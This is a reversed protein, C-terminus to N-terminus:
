TRMVLSMNDRVHVFRVGKSACFDASRLRFRGESTADSSAPLFVPSGQEYIETDVDDASMWAVLVFTKLKPLNNKELLRLLTADVDVLFGNEYGYPADVQVYLAEVTPAIRSDLDVGTENVANSHLTIHLECASSCKEVLPILLSGPGHPENLSTWPDEWLVLQVTAIESLHNSIVAVFRRPECSSTNTILSLPEFADAMEGDEESDMQLELCFSTIGYEGRRRLLWDVYCVPLEKRPYWKLSLRRLCKAPTIQLPPPPPSAYSRLKWKPIHLYTQTSRLLRRPGQTPTSWGELHLAQLSRYEPLVLCLEALCPNIGNIIAGNFNRHSLWLGKLRELGKLADLFSRMLSVDFNYEDFYTWVSLLQINQLKRVLANLYPIVESPLEGDFDGDYDLRTACTFLVERTWLGISPLALARQIGEV